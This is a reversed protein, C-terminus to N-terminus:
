ALWRVPDINTGASKDYNGMAWGFNYWLSHGGVVEGLEFESLDEFRKMIKRGRIM